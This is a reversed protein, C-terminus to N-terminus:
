KNYLAQKNEWQETTGILHEFVHTKGSEQRTYNSYKGIMTSVSYQRHGKFNKRKMLSDQNTNVKSYIQVNACM